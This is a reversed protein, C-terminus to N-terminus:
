HTSLVATLRPVGLADFSRGPLATHLAGLGAAWWWRRGHSAGKTALWEPLGRARLERFTTRGRKWQKLQLARLRRHIWGDLAAFVSPTDALRFYERWGRLYPGLEKAVQTLSRGGNRRTIHRIRHKFAELASGAVGRYITGSRRGFRYGLFKRTHVRAVASKEENIRLRLKAYQQRLAALVREGARKSRVYVNCDDAYRVFAHGRRELEQDVQDLLTNALLPSIV